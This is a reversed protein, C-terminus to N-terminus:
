TTADILWAPDLTRNTSVVTVLDIDHAPHPKHLQCSRWFVLSDLYPLVVWQVHLKRLSAASASYDPLCPLYLLVESMGDMLVLGGSITSKVNEFEVSM